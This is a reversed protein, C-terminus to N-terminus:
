IINELELKYYEIKTKELERLAEKIAGSSEDGVKETEPETNEIISDPLSVGISKYAAQVEAIPIDLMRYEAPTTTSTMEVIPWRTIEGSKTVRKAAPLTGSSFFLKKQKVLPQIYQLYMEHQLIQAEIWLGVDDPEMMDIAAYATSKMTKDDQGHDHLMPIKGMVDFIATLDTTNKTFFEDHLDRKEDGGWLVGYAGIRNNGINKIYHARVTQEKGNASGVDVSKIDTEEVQIEIDFDEQLNEVLITSTNEGSLPPSDPGIRINYTHMVTENMNNQLVFFRMSM